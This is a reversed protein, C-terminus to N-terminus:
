PGVGAAPTIILVTQAIRDANRARIAENAARREGGAANVAV